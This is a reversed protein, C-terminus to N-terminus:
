AMRRLRALSLMSLLLIAASAPEPIVLTQGATVKVNDIKGYRGEEDDMWFAVWIPGVNGPLNFSKHEFNDLPTRRLLEVWQSWDQQTTTRNTTKDIGLNDGVHYGVTFRGDSAAAFTRWDFELVIQSYGTTDIRFILGGDDEFRGVPTENRGSGWKQVGLDAVMAEAGTEFRAAYWFESAGESIEPIGINIPDGAPIANPFSTYGNFTENFLVVPVPAGLTRSMSGLLALCIVSCLLVFRRSM